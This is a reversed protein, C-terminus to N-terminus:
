KFLRRLLDIARRAPKKAAQPAAAPMTIPAGTTDHAAEIAPGCDGSDALALMTEGPQALVGVVDGMGTDAGVLGSALVAASTVGSAPELTLKPDRWPGDARSPLVLGTGGLRIYPRLRLAFTEDRLDVAGAAALRLRKTSLLFAQPVAVGGRFDFGGALCAVDSRGGSPLSLGLKAAPTIFTLARLLPGNAISGGTLALGAHGELTGALAHPTDGAGSLGATLDVSGAAAGPDGALAALLGADLGTGDLTLTGRPPQVSGDATVAGSVVGAGMRARVGGLELRGGALVLHAAVGTVPVAHWVIGDASLAVDADFGQMWGLPLARDSIIWAGAPMAAPPAGVRAAPAKAAEAWAAALGDLDLRAVHVQAAYSPRGGLSATGDVGIDAQPLTLHAGRLYLVGRQSRVSGTVEVDRLRPLAVQALPSLAALDPVSATLTADTGAWDGTPAVRGTVRVRAGAASATADLTIPSRATVQGRGFLRGVPGFTGVLALAQAAYEGDARVHNTQTGSTGDINPADIALANLRLGAVLNSLDSHAATLQLRPIDVGDLRDVVRTHLVVDALRPMPLQPFPAALSGLDPGLADITLDYGSLARPRSISGNVDVTGADATLKLAVPWDSRDETNWLHNQGGFKGDLHVMQGAASTTLALFITSSPNVEALRLAQIAATGSGAPTQWSVAGAATVGLITFSRPPKPAGGAPRREGAPAAEAGAPSFAWNPALGAPQELRLDMGELSLSRVVVRHFLLPIPSIVVHVRRATIMAPRSFGPPNTLAVGTADVTLEPLLHLKMTGMTLTRGTARQVEAVMRAKLAERDVQHLLVPVAILPVGVVVALV